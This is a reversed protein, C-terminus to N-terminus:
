CTKPARRRAAGAALLAAGALTVLALKMPNDTCAPSPSPFGAFAVPLPVRDGRIGPLTSSPRCAVSQAHAHACAAAVGLGVEEFAVREFTPARLILKHAQLAAGARVGDLAARAPRLRVPRLIASAPEEPSEALELLPLPPDESYVSAMPRVAIARAHRAVGSTWRWSDTEPRARGRTVVGVRIREDDRVCWSELFWRHHASGVRNV